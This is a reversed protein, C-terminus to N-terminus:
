GEAGQIERREGREPIWDVYQKRGYPERLGTLLKYIIGRGRSNRQALIPLADVSKCHRYFRNWEKTDLRGDTKCQIFVKSRVDFAYIDVPTKSGASRVVLYNRKLMDDRVAYEFDRARAYRSRAM